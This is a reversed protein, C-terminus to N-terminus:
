QDIIFRKIWAEQIEFARQTIVPLTHALGGDVLPINIKPVTEQVVGFGDNFDETTPVGEMSFLQQGVIPMDLMHALATSTSNPVVNDDGGVLVAIPRAGDQDLPNRAFEVFNAPDMHDLEQQMMSRMFLADSGPAQFPILTSFLFPWLVSESLLKTLGVGGVHFYGGKINPVVSMPTLGIVGGLSSGQVMIRDVDIDGVGDGHRAFVKCIVNWWTCSVSPLVDLTAIDINVAKMLSVLDLAGQTLMGVQQPIKRPGVNFVVWSGDSKIRKGHFPFDIGITAMGLKANSFANVSLEKFGALPHGYVSIPVQQNSEAHPLSLLFPVWETEPSTDFDVLGDGGERYNDLRVQGRVWVAVPGSSTRKIKIDKVPHENQYVANMAHLMPRQVEDKSRVTFATMSMIQTEDVGQSALANAGQQYLSSVYTDGTNQTLRDLVNRANADPFSQGSETLVRNTMAVVYRTGYAWRVLPFVEVVSASKVFPHFYGYGSFRAIVPEREGTGLNIAVISPLVSANRPRSPLEFLVASNPSFGSSGNLMRELSVGRDSPLESSLPLLQEQYNLRRGSSADSDAQTFHDSPFPLACNTMSFPACSAGNAQVHTVCAVNVMLFLTFRLVNNM